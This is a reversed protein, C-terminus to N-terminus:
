ATFVYSTKVSFTKMAPVVAETPLECEILDQRAASVEVLKFTQLFEKARADHLRLGTFQLATQRM